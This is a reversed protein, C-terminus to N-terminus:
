SNKTLLTSLPTLRVRRDRESQWQAIAQLTAEYPHGIAIATGRSLAMREAKHLQYIIAKRDQTNDLFINRRLYPIHAQHAIRRAVSDPSTLSDLFFLQQKALKQFTNRMGESSATFRSGMHNNIGVANPLQALNRSLTDQIGSANMDVFLAGPGPDAEPYNKPEMPQHLLLELGHKRALAATERTHTSSPLVSFTVPFELQALRKAKHIDEGLDDIVICLLGQHKEPHPTLPAPAFSLRHTIVGFTTIEWTGEDAFRLQAQDHSELAEALAQTIGTAYGDAALTLEQYHYRQGAKTRTEVHQPHIPVGHKQATSQVIHDITTVTTELEDLITEEYDRTPDDSSVSSSNTPSQPIHPLLFLGLTLLLASLALVSLGAILPTQVKIKRSPVGKPQKTSRSQKSPSSGKAM